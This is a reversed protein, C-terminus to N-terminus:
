PRAERTPAPAPDLDAMRGAVFPLATFLPLTFYVPIPYWFLAEPSAYLSLVTFFLLGYAALAPAIPNAAPNATRKVAVSDATDAAPRAIHDTAAAINTRPNGRRDDCQNRCDNRVDGRGGTRGGDDRHAMKARWTM